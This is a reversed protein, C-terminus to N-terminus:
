IKQQSIKQNKTQENSEKEIEVSPQKQSPKLVM